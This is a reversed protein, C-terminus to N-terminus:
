RKWLKKIYQGAKNEERPSWIVKIQPWFNKRYWSIAVKSDSFVVIDSINQHYNKIHCEAEKIAMFEALNNTAFPMLSQFNQAGCIDCVLAYGAFNKKHPSACGDVWIYSELGNM